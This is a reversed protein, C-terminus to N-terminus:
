NQLEQVKNISNINSKSLVFDIDQNDNNNLDLQKPLM